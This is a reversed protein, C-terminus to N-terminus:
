NRWVVDEIWPLYININIGEVTKPREYFYDWPECSLEDDLIGIVRDRKNNQQERITLVDGAITFQGTYLYRSCYYKVQLPFNTRYQVQIGEIHTFSNQHIIQSTFTFNDADNEIWLCSLLLKPIRVTKQLDILALKEDWQEYYFTLNNFGEFNQNGYSIFVTKTKRACKATTLVFQSSILIGHCITRATSGQSELLNVTPHSYSAFKDNVQRSEQLPLKECEKESFSPLKSHYNLIRKLWLGYPQLAIAGIYEPQDKIEGSAFMQVGILFWKGADYKFLGNGANRNFKHTEKFLGLCLAASYTKQFIKATNNQCTEPDNVPLIESERLPVVINKIQVRNTEPICVPGVLANFIVRRNLMILVLDNELEEVNFQKPFYLKKILLESGDAMLLWLQRIDIPEGNLDYLCHAVTLVFQDNMLTADCLISDRVPMRDIIRVNWKWSPDNREGCITEVSVVSSIVHRTVFYILLLLRKM